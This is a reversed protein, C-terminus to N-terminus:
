YFDPGQKPRDPKPAEPKAPTAAQRLTEVRAAKITGSDDFVLVPEGRENLKVDVLVASFTIGGEGIGLYRVLCSRGVLDRLMM